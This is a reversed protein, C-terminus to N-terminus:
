QMFEHAGKKLLEHQEPSFKDSIHFHDEWMELTFVDCAQTFAGQDSVHVVMKVNYCTVM